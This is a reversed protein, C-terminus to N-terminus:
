MSNAIKKSVSLRADLSPEIYGDVASSAWRGHRKLNERSISPVAAASTAGGARLSHLSYQLLDPVLSVLARPLQRFMVARSAQRGLSLVRDRAVVISLLVLSDEIASASRLLKFYRQAATVACYNPMDSQGAVTVTNGQRFQDCKSQTISIVMYDEFFRFHRLHLVSCDSFRLFAYFSTLIFFRLLDHQDVAMSQSPCAGDILQRV